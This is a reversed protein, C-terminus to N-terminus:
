IFSGQIEQRYVSPSYVDKVSENETTFLIRFFGPADLILQKFELEGKRPTGLVVINEVTSALLDSAKFDHIFAPDDVVLLDGHFSQLDKSLLIKVNSLNKYYSRGTPFTLVGIKSATYNRSYREILYKAFSSKGQQRPFSAVVKPTHDLLENVITQFTNLRLSEKM